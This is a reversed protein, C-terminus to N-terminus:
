QTRVTPYQIGLQELYTNYKTPDYYFKKMQDRYKAMTQQNLWIAPKDETRVFPVYKKDKTQVNKFYDWAQAVLDPKRELPLRVRLVPQQGVDRQVAGAAVARNV